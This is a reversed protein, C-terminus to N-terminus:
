STKNVGVEKIESEIGQIMKEWSNQKEEQSALPFLM